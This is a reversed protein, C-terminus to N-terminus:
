RLRIWIGNSIPVQVQVVLINDPFSTGINLKIAHM